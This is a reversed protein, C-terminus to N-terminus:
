RTTARAADDLNEATFGHGVPSGSTVFHQQIYERKFLLHRRPDQPVASALAPEAGAAILAEPLGAPTTTGGAPLGIM